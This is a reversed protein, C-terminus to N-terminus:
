RAPPPMVRVSDGELLVRSGAALADRQEVTRVTGDDMRVRLRYGGRRNAAVSEVVGCNGCAPGAGLENARPALSVASERGNQRDSRTVMVTALLATVVVTVVAFTPVLRELDRMRGRWSVRAGAEGPGPTKTDRSDM